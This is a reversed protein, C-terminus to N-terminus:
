CIVVETQEVLPSDIPQGELLKRYEGIGNLVPSVLGTRKASYQNLFVIACLPDDIHWGTGIESFLLRCHCIVFLIFSPKAHVHLRSFHCGQSCKQKGLGNGPRSFANLFRTIGQLGFFVIYGFFLVQFLHKLGCLFLVGQKGTPLHRQIERGVIIIITIVTNIDSQVFVATVDAPKANFLVGLM